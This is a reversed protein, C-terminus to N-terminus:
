DGPLMVWLSPRGVNCHVARSLPTLSAWNLWLAHRAVHHISAYWRQIAPASTQPAALRRVRESRAPVPHFITEVRRSRAPEDDQWRDLQEIADRAAATTIPARTTAPEVAEVSAADIAFVAARSPTPLVLVGLFAWLTMGAAATCLGAASALPAVTVYPLLGVVLAFGLTNWLIAALVGRQHAGSDRIIRRRALTAELARDPLLSWRLPILLTGGRVGSWGGVFGEDPVDLVRLQSADLGAREAARSVIAPTARVPMAAVRQAFWGRTGALVLQMLVFALLAGGAGWTRTGALLVVISACWVLLQAAVGRLWRRFFVSPASKERVLWAGGILDFPVFALVGFALAAILSAAAAGIPQRADISLLRAPLDFALVTTALLVSTGVGSIGLLLRARAYTIRRSALRYSLSPSTM